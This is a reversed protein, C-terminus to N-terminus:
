IHRHYFSFKILKAYLQNERLVHLVLRLNKEHEKVFNSYILINDSFIIVFKDLYLRFIGNMLCMFTIPANELGFSWLSMIVMNPRSLQKTLLKM